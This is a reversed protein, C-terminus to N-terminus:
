SWQGVTVVTNTGIPYCKFWTNVGIVAAAATTLQVSPIITGGANIRFIGKILVTFATGVAATAINGTQANVNSWIGGIAAGTNQATADLGFAHWAASTFTAGGAGVISFGLNGSTASMASLNLSCEFYYSTSGNVTLAGNTAGTSGAFISQLTIASALTRTATTAIFSETVVVGRQSAIPTFYLTTGDYEISGSAATTLNTGATLDLPAKSATGAAVDLHAVGDIVVKDAGSNTVFRIPNNTTTGIVLDSSTSTLYTVNPATLSATGLSGAWGNSNIGFNAYNTTATGINNSLTLDASASSGSNTNQIVVQNYANASSVFSALTNADSYSLTGLAFAGQTLSGSTNLTAVYKSETVTENADAYVSKAAPYTVFVEKDGSSFTVLSGANSSELVVDRSLTNGSSTYTGLGTEWESGLAIAYYCTNGDGIASLFTQFGNVAGALTVTGTGTTATTEKVRDKIILAM